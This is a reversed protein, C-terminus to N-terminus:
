TLGTEHMAFIQMWKAANRDLDTRTDGLMAVDSAGPSSALDVKEKEEKKYSHTRTGFLQKAGDALWFLGPSIWAKLAISNARKQGEYKARCPDSTSRHLRRWTPNQLLGGVTLSRHPELRGLLGALSRRCRSSAKELNNRKALLRHNGLQTYPQIQFIPKM